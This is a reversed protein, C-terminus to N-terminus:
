LGERKPLRVCLGLCLLTRVHEQVRTEYAIDVAMRNESQYLARKRSWMTQAIPSSFGSLSLVQLLFRNLSHESM